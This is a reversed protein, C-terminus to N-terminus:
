FEVGVSLQTDSVVSSPIVPPPSAHGNEWEPSATADPLPRGRSGNVRGHRLSLETVLYLGCQACSTIRDVPESRQPAAVLCGSARTRSNQCNTTM